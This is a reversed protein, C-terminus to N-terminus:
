LKIQNAIIEYKHKYVKLDEIESRLSNIENTLKSLLPEYEFITPKVPIYNVSKGFEKASLYLENYDSYKMNTPHLRRYHSITSHDKNVVLGISEVTNAWCAANAWAARALVLPRNRSGNDTIGHFLLFDNKWQRLIKISVRELNRKSFPGRKTRELDIEGVRIFSDNSTTPQETYM